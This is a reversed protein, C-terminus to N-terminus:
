RCRKPMKVLISKKQEAKKGITETVVNQNVEENRHKKLTRLKSGKPPATVLKLRITPPYTFITTEETTQTIETEENEVVNTNKVLTDEISEKISKGYDEEYDINQDPGNFYDTEEQGTSTPKSPKQRGVNIAVELITFTILEKSHKSLFTDCKKTPIKRVFKRCM